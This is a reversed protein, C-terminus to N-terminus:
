QTPTQRYKYTWYHKNLSITHAMVQHTYTLSAIEEQHIIGNILKFHGEKDKGVLKSKLDTKGSILIIVGAQNQPGNVQFIKKRGKVRLRHKDKDTLYM